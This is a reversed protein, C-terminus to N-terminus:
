NIINNIAHAVGNCTHSKTVFDCVEKIEEMANEVAIKMGAKEIMYLDNLSDGIAAVQEFDLHLLSCLHGLAIGKNGRKETVEVNHSGSTVHMLTEYEEMKKKLREIKDQDFTVISINYAMEEISIFESMNNVLMIGNQLALEEKAFKVKQLPIEIGKKRLHEIEEDLVNEWQTSTIYHRSTGIGYCIGSQDLYQTLRELMDRQIPRSYLLEGSTSYLCTGNNSIIYPSLGHQKCIMKADYYIRGTAVVFYIGRKQLDKIANVNEESITFDKQLLTGDMDSAFLKIETERM